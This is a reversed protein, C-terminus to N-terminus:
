QASDSDPENLRFLFFNSGEAYFTHSFKNEYGLWKIINKCYKSIKQLIQYINNIKKLKKCYM